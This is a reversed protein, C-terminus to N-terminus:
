TGDNIEDDRINHATWIVDCVGHDQAIFIATNGKYERTMAYNEIEEPITIQEQEMLKRNGVILRRNDVTAKIGKGKIMESHIVEYTLDLTWKEAEKVITKGIHHESLKEANAILTFLIEELNDDVVKFGSVT